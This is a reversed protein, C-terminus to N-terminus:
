APESPGAEPHGIRVACARLERRVGDLMMEVLQDADVFDSRHPIAAPQGDPGMVIREPEYTGNEDLSRVLGAFGIGARPKPARLAGLDPLGNRDLAM